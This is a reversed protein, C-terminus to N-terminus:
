DLEHAAQHWVVTGILDVQQEDNGDFIIDDFEDSYSDPSLMLKRGGRFMRRVIYEGNLCVCVLSGSRPEVEPDVVILSGSAIVKNVCDGDLIMVRGMPHNDAVSKPVEATAGDITLPDDWEGAHAHGLFPLFANEPSGVVPFGMSSSGGYILENESVNFYDCLADIHKQLRPRPLTNEWDSISPTSAGVIEALQEQTLGARKRLERLKANFPTTM